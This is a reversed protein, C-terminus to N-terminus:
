ASGDSVPVTLGRSQLVGDLLGNIFRGSNESGFKKALEIAEDVIVVKPVSTEHLMEYIALRLINRDITPMRELRWNEAHERILTDISTCNKLTGAVLRQAYQFSKDVRSLRERGAAAFAEGSETATEMEALYSELDFSAFIQGLPAEGLEHQYLMQM